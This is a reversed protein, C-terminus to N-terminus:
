GQAYPNTGAALYADVQTPTLDLVASPFVDLFRASVKLIGPDATGATTIMFGIGYKPDDDKEFTATKRVLSMVSYTPTVTFAKDGALVPIANVGGVQTAATFAASLDCVYTFVTTNTSDVAVKCIVPKAVLATPAAAYAFRIERLVTHKNVLFLGLISNADGARWANVKAAEVEFCATLERAGYAQPIVAKGKETLMADVILSNRNVVAM